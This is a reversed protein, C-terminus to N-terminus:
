QFRITFGILPQTTAPGIMSTAPDRTVPTLAGTALNVFYLTSQTAGTPQLAALALGNDGGVIDLGGTLSFAATTSPTLRGVTNLVGGNAGNMGPGISILSNTPPDIAYLVTNPAM